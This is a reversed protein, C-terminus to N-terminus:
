PSHEGRPRALIVALLWCALLLWQVIADGLYVMSIRGVSVYWSDILAFALAQGAGLVVIEPTVRRLVGAQVLVTGSVMVLAGVTRVLWTDVKPGTVAMFSSLHVLAWFGTLAYYLGQGIALRCWDPQGEEATGAALRPSGLVGRGGIGVM